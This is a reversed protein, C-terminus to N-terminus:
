VQNKKISTTFFSGFFGKERKIMCILDFKNNKVFDNISENVTKSMPVESYTTEIDELYLKNKQPTGKSLDTNLNLITVKADFKFALKQLPSLISRYVENLDSALVIQKLPLFSHNPPVVLVPVNAMELADAAVSGFIVKVLGSAGKSGM